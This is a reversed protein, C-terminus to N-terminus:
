FRKNGQHPLLVQVDRKKLDMTKTDSDIETQLSQKLLDFAHKLDSEEKTKAQILPLTEAGDLTANRAWSVIRLHIALRSKSPHLFIIPFVFCVVHVYM